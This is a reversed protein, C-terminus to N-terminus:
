RLTRLLRRLRVLSELSNAPLFHDVWPLAAAMGAATPEYGPHGKLPNLWLIRFSRRRLEAMQTSLRAPDGREWGDSLILVVTRSGLLRRGHRLLFEELCAAIATGGSWAATARSLAAAAAEFRRRRLLPTLEFLRTSFAFTHVDGRERQLAHLFQLLFGAYRDMSGSVDCLAVLRLRERRRRMRQLDLLEGGTRQARRMSRRVDVLPGSASREFRRSPATALVPALKAVERRVRAAEAPSLDLFDKRVLLDTDGATAEFGPLISAGEERDFRELPLTVPVYAAAPPRPQEQLTPRLREGAEEEASQGFFREFVADFIPLEEPATVSLARLAARFAERDTPDIVGLARVAEVARAPTVALGERRLARCFSLVRASLSGRPDM